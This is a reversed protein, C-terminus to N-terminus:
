TVRSEACGDKDGAQALEESWDPKLCLFLESFFAGMCQMSVASLHRVIYVLSGVRLAVQM